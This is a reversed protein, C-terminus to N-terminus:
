LKAVNNDKAAEGNGLKVITQGQSHYRVVTDVPPRINDRLTGPGSGYQEVYSESRIRRNIGRCRFCLIEKFPTRFERNFRAYIVPNLFSNMYGLWLFLSNLWMPICNLSDACFPKILALIFFPLWCATFAGMIVGLTKTAKSERNSSNLRLKPKKLLTLRKIISNRPLMDFTAEDTGTSRRGKTKHNCNHNEERDSDRTTISPRSVVSPHQGYDSHTDAAGSGPGKSRAEANAIRSSVMFIRYYVIIMVALPLYFAGITAYFQYGIQQSVTCQQHIPESKWGFIPPISILASSLWVGSIMLAMRKPTRKVAYTFPRTIVFYRDVSIVCLNLISATCLMVDLSTWASCMLQGLPWIGMVEYIVAPPMVLLAVFLDSVALSVILLNSPTRLRRVIGVATCVLINGVVTGVTIASLLIVIIVAQWIEYPSGPERPIEVDDTTNTCNVMGSVNACVINNYDPSTTASITNNIGFVQSSMNYVSNGLVDYM